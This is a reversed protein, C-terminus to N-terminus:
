LAEIGENYAIRFIEYLTAHVLTPEGPLEFIVNELNCIGIWLEDESLNNVVTYIERWGAGNITGDKPSIHACIKDFADMVHEIQEDTPTDPQSM